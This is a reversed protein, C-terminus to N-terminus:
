SSPTAAGAVVAVRGEYRRCETKQAFALTKLSPSASQQSM